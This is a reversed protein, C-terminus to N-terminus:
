DTPEEDAKQIDQLLPGQPTMECTVVVHYDWLPRVVDAMMGRPVFVKQKTGTGGVIQIQPAKQSRDDAYLLRGQYQVTEGVPGLAKQVPHITKALRRFAVRQDEGSESNATFGVLKIARGDPALQKAIGVFNRYYADDTIHTRLGEEDGNNLMSLCALLDSVISQPSLNPFLLEQNNPRALRFTVALSAARPVTVYIEFDDDGSTRGTPDDRFEASARREITRRILRQTQEIRRVFKETRAVGFGVDDGALSMQFEDAALTLGRLDLHRSFYAQEWLDRLEEMIEAPPDGSLALAICREAERTNGYELALSAASRLLVSRSPEDNVLQAAAKERTFADHFHTIALQADGAAKALDAQEALQMAETHLQAARKM